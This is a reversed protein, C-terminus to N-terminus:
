STSVLSAATKEVRERYLDLQTDKRVVEVNLKRINEELQGIQNQLKSEVRDREQLEKEFNRGKDQEESPGSAQPIPSAGEKQQLTILGLDTIILCSDCKSTREEEAQSLLFRYM